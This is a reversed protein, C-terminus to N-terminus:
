CGDAITRLVTLNSQTITHLMNSLNINTDVACSLLAATVVICFAITISFACSCVSSSACMMAPVPM